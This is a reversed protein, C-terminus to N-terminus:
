KFERTWREKTLEKAARTADSYLRRFDQLFAILAIRAETFTAFCEDDADDPHVEKIGSYIGDTDLAYLMKVKKPLPSENVKKEIALRKGHDTTLLWKSPEVLGAKFCQHCDASPDDLHHGDDHGNEEGAELYCNRCLKIYAADVSDADNTARTRKKCVYCTYCGSGNKFGDTKKTTQKM